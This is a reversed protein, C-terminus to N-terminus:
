RSGLRPNLRNLATLLTNWEIMPGGLSELKYMIKSCIKCFFSGCKTDKNGKSDATSTMAQM